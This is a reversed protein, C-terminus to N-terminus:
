LRRNPRYVKRSREGAGDEELPSPEHDEEQQAILKDLTAQRDGEGMVAEMEPTFSVAAPAGPAKGAPRVQQPRKKRATKFFETRTWTKWSCGIRRAQASESLAFFAKEMQKALDMAAANAKEVSMKGHGPCAARCCAIIQDMVELWELENAPEGKWPPINPLGCMRLAAFYFDLPPLTFDADVLGTLYAAGEEPTRPARVGRPLRGGRHGKSAQIMERVVHERVPLVEELIAKPSSLAELIAKASTLAAM